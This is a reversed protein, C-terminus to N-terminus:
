HFSLMLSTLSCKQSTGCLCNSDKDQSTGFHEYIEKLVVDNEMVYDSGPFTYELRFPSFQTKLGWTGTRISLKKAASLFIEIGSDNADANM